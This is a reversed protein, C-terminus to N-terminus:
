FGAKLRDGLYLSAGVFWLPHLPLIYRVEVWISLHLLLYLVTLSLLIKKFYAERETIHPKSSFFYLIYFVCALLPVINFVLYAPRYIHHPKFKLIVIHNDVYRIDGSGFPSQIPLFYLPIEKLKMLLFTGPHNVIFDYVSQMNLWNPIGDLYDVDIIPYVDASLINNGKIFTYEGNGPYSSFSFSGTADAIKKQWPAIVVCFAILAYMLARTKQKTGYHPTTYAAIALMPIFIVGTARTLWGLGALVGLVVFRKVLGTESVIVAFFLLIVLCFLTTDRAQFVEEQWL